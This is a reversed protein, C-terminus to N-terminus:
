NLIEFQKVCQIVREQASMPMFNFLPLRLIRKGVHDTVPLVQDNKSVKQGMVSSHLPQYHFTSQIGNRALHQILGDRTENSPLMLYFVHYSPESDPPVLPLGVRNCKAWDSLGQLYNIWAIRRSEHLEQALRLQPLLLAATVESPMYNSGIDIWQYYTVLGKNFRERDTGKDRLSTAREILNEDNIALAGGEGCTFNKTEHFSFAALKGMSGLSRGQYKCIPGHALDEVFDLDYKRVLELLSNLDCPVGNYHVTAIARTRETVLTAAHEVDLCLTDPRIDAFRLVAGRLLFANATSPFTFSPLIVEEGRKLDLLLAAMELASTCSTTLLVKRCSTLAELQRECQQTYDGGGKLRGSSLVESIYDQSNDPIFPRNFPISENFARVPSQEVQCSATSEM